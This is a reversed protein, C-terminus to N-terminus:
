AALQHLQCIAWTINGRLGHKYGVANTITSVITVDETFLDLALCENYADILQRPTGDTSSLFLADQAIGINKKTKKM